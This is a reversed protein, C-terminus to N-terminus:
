KVREKLAKAARFGVAKSEEIFMKEKTSPNVGDHAPKVKVSFKGFGSLDVSNGKALESVVEDLIFQIEENAAKKTIEFRDAVRDALAKKNLVEKM